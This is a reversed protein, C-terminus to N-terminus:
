RTVEQDREDDIALDVSHSTRRAHNEASKTVFERGADDGPAFAHASWRAECERCAALAQPDDTQGDELLGGDTAVRGQDTETQPLSQHGVVGRTQIGSVRCGCPSARHDGPGRSAIALMPERCSPCHRM